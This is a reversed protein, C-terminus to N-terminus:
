EDDALIQDIASPPDPDKPVPEAEPLALAKEPHRWTELRIVTFTLAFVCFMLGALVTILAAVANVFDMM